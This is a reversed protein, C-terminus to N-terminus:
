CFLDVIDIRKNSFPNDYSIFYRQKHNDALISDDLVRSILTLTSYFIAMLTLIIPGCFIISITISNIITLLNFMIRLTKFQEDRHHQNQIM